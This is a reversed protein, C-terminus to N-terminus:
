GVGRNLWANAWKPALEIARSFDTVAKEPQNLRDCYIAGRNIWAEYHDINGKLKITSSIALLATADSYTSLQLSNKGIIADRQLLFLREFAGNVEVITYDDTARAVCM